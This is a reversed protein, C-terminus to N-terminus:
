SFKLKEITDFFDKRTKYKGRTGILLVFFRWAVQLFEVLLELEEIKQDHHVVDSRLGYAKVITKSIARRDEGNDSITFAIREAISQQISETKNQLLFSDLSRFVYLLRDEPSKQLSSKSFTWISRWLDKEFETQNLCIFMHHLGGMGAQQLMDMTEDNLSFYEFPEDDGTAFGVVADDLITLVESGDVHARGLPRIHSPILPHLICPQFTRLIALANETEALAIEKARMPEALLKITCSAHGQLRTRYHAVLAQSQEDWVGKLKLQGEWTEFFQPRFPHVEVRGLEFDFDTTLGHVPVWVWISRVREEFEALLYECLPATITQQHSGVAWDFVTDEVAKQSVRERFGETRQINESLIRVTRYADEGVGIRGEGIQRHKTLITGVVDVKMETFNKIEELSLSAVPIFGGEAKTSAQKIIPAVEILALLAQGEANFGQVANPHLYVKPGSM